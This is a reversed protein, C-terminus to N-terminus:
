KLYMSLPSFFFIVFVECHLTDQVPDNYQISRGRKMTLQM